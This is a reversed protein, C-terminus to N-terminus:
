LFSCILLCVDLVVSVDGVCPMIQQCIMGSITSVDVVNYVHKGM